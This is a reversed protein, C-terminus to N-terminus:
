TREGPDPKESSSKIDNQAGVMDPERIFFLIVLAILNFIFALIGMIWGLSGGWSREEIYENGGPNTESGFFEEGMKRHIKIDYIESYIESIMWTELESEMEFQKKAAPPEAIMFYLPASLTILLTICGIIMVPRISKLKRTCIALTSILLIITMLIAFLMIQYTRNYVPVLKNDSFEENSYGTIDVGERGEEVIKHTVKNLEFENTITEGGTGVFRGTESLTTTIKFWPMIFSLILMILAILILVQGAFRLRLINRISSKNIIGHNPFKKNYYFLISLGGLNFIFAFIGLLWGSGGGWSTQYEYVVTYTESGFFARDSAVPEAIMFYLPASLTILLAIFGIIMGARIGKVKKAGVVLVSILLIITMLIALLVIQFTRTYVQVVNGNEFEEDSYYTVLLSETDDSIYRQIKENFMYELTITPKGTSPPNVVSEEPLVVTEMFWPLFLSSLLMILAILILMPAVYRLRSSKM